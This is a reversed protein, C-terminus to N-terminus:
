QENKELVDAQFFMRQWLPPYSTHLSPGDLAVYLNCSTVRQM